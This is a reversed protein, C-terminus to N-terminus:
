DDIRRSHWWEVSTIYPMVDEDRGMSWNGFSEGMDCNIDVRVMASVHHREAM